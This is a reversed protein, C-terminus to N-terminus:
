KNPSDSKVCETLSCIVLASHRRVCEQTLYGLIFYPLQVKDLVTCGAGANLVKIAM